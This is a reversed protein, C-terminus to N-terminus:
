SKILRRVAHQPHQNRNDSDSNRLNSSHHGKSDHDIWPTSIRIVHDECEPNFCVYSRKAQADSGVRQWPQGCSCKGGNWERADLVWALLILYAVFVVLCAAFVLALEFMDIM